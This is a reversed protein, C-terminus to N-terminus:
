LRDEQLFDMVCPSSQTDCVALGKDSLYSGYCGCFGLLDTDRAESDLM